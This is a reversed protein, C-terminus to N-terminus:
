YEYKVFYGYEFFVYEHVFSEADEFKSDRHSTLIGTLVSICFNLDNVIWDYYDSYSLVSDLRQKHVYELCRRVTNVGFNEHMGKTAIDKVM